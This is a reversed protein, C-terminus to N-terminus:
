DQWIISYPHLFCFLSSLWLECVIVSRRLDFSKTEGEMSPNISGDVDSDRSTASLRRMKWLGWYFLRTILLGIYTPDTDDLSARCKQKFSSSLISFDTYPCFLIKLGKYCSSLNYSGNRCGYLLVAGWANTPPTLAAMPSTSTQVLWVLCELRETAARGDHRVTSDNDSRAIVLKYLFM